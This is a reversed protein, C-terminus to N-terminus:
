CVGRHMLSKARGHCRSLLRKGRSRSNTYRRKASATRGSASVPKCAKTWHDRTVGQAAQDLQSFLPVVILGSSVAKTMAQREVAASAWVGVGLFSAARAFGFSGIPQLSTPVTLLVLNHAPFQTAAESSCSATGASVGEKGSRAESAMGGS